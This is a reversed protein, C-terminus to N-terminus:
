WGRCLVYIDSGSAIGPSAQLQVLTTTSNVVLTHTFGDNTSMMCAPTNTYTTNFNVNILTVTGSTLSIKMATNRGAITATGGTVTGLTPVAPSDMINTSGLNFNGSADFTARLTGSGTYIRVAGVANFAALSVGGTGNGSVMTGAQVQAGSTTFTSSYSDLVSTVTDSNSSVRGINGSGATSNTVTLSNVGVGGASFLHAGFTEWNFLGAATIQGREVTGSGTFFHIIGTADAASLSLGGVGSSNLRAGDAILSGVTTYTSSQVGLSGRTATVDNGLFLIGRNAVGATTNRVTLMQDGVGGATFSSAGFLTSSLTGALTIVTGAQSMISNGISAAGTFVPIFTATGPGVSGGTALALGNFFLNGGVNYLANTTTGPTFSPLTLGQNVVTPGAQLGGLCTSPASATNGGVCVSTPGTNLTVLTQGVLNAPQAAACICSTFVLLITTVTDRFISRMPSVKPRSVTM